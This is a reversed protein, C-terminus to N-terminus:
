PKAKAKKIELGLAECLRSLYASTLSARGELYRKVAEKNPSGGCREAVAYASLGLADVQSKIAAHITDTDSM